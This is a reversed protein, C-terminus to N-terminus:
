SAWTPALPACLVPYLPPAPTRTLPFLATNFALQLGRPRPHVLLAAAVGVVQAVVLDSPIALVLGAALVLDSVSFTHSDKKVQVHVPFAESLAFAAAWLVWPLNLATAAGHLPHVVVVFLVVAVAALATTVLMIRQPVSLRLARPATGPAGNTM